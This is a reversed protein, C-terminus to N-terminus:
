PTVGRGAVVAGGQRWHGLDRLVARARDAEMESCGSSSRGRPTARSSRSSTFRWQSRTRRWRGRCFARLEEAGVSTDRLVIHAHVVEGWHEDPHGVVVVEIVAPHEMLVSEIEIPFINEGGRVIM